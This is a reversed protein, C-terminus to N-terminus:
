LVRVNSSSAAAAVPNHLSVSSRAAGEGGKAGEAGEADGEADIEEVIKSANAEDDQELGSDIRHRHHDKEDHEM